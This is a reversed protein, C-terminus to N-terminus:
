SLTVGANKYSQGFDIATANDLECNIENIEAVTGFDFIFEIEDLDNDYDIEELSQYITPCSISKTDNCSISCYSSNSQNSCIFRMGLCGNGYCNLWCKHNIGCVFTTNYGAYYGYM